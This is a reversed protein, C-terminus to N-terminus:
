KRKKGDVAPLLDPKVKALYGLLVGVLVGELAWGVSGFGYMIAALRALNLEAEDEHDDEDEYNDEEHEFLEFAILGSKEHRHFAENIDRVGVAIVGFSLTTALFMAVIVAFFGSWFINKIKKLLFMFIAFGLVAELGIILSNLGLVTIGGHGVLALFFNAMFAALVGFLPGLVIGTPVSFNIHYAIPVIEVTMGLIMLAAFFGVLSYKAKSQDKKFNISIFFLFIGLLIFGGLILWLPLIGDPLHLHSM